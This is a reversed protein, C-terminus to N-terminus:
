ESPVCEPYKDAEAEAAAIIDEREEPLLFRESILRDTAAEVRESYAQRTPYLAGCYNSGLAEDVTQYPTFLGEYGGTNTCLLGSSSGPGSELVFKARGTSLDGSGIPPSAYHYANNLDFDPSSITHCDYGRYLGLPAAAQPLAIGGFGNGTLPDLLIIGFKYASNLGLSANMYTSNPLPTNNRIKNLLNILDARFIPSRDLPNQRTLSPDLGFYELYPGLPFYPGDLHSTSNIDHNKYHDLEDLHGPPGPRAGKTSAFYQVDSESHISITPGESAPPAGNCDKLVSDPATVDLCIDANLEKGGLFEVKGADGGLIVGDLVRGRPFIPDALGWTSNLRNPNILVSKMRNSTFSYGFGVVDNVKCFDESGNIFNASTKDQRLWKSVDRYLIAYDQPREMHLGIGSNQPLAAIYDLEGAFNNAQFGMYIIGSGGHSPDGFLFKERFNALAEHFGQDLLPDYVPDNWAHITGEFAFPPFDPSGIFNPHILETIGVHALRGVDCAASKPMVIRVPVKYSSCTGDWFRHFNANSITGILDVYNNESYTDGGIGHFPGSRFIEVVPNAEASTCAAVGNDTQKAWAPGAKLGMFLILFFLLVRSPFCNKDTIM